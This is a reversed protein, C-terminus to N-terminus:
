ESRNLINKIWCKVAPKVDHLKGEVYLRLLLGKAPTELFTKSKKRVTVKGKVSSPMLDYSATVEFDNPNVM